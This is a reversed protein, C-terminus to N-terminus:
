GGPIRVELLFLDKCCNIMLRVSIAIIKRLRLDKVALKDRLIVHQRKRRELEIVCSPRVEQAM